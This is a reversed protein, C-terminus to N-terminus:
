VSEPCLSATGRVLCSFSARSICNKRVTGCSVASSGVMAEISGASSSAVIAAAFLNLVSKCSDPANTKAAPRCGGDDAFVTSAVSPSGTTTSPGNTSAGSYTPPKQTISRSRARGDGVGRGIPVVDHELEHSFVLVPHTV